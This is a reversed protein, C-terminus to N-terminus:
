YAESFTKQYIANKAKAHSGSRRESQENHSVLAETMRGPSLRAVDRRTVSPTYKPLRYPLPYSGTEKETGDSLWAGSCVTWQLADYVREFGPAIFYLWVM